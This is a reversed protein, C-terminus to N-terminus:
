SVGCGSVGETQSTGAVLLPQGDDREFTVEMPVRLERDPYVVAGAADLLDVHTSDICLRATVIQLDGDESSEILEVDDFVTSGDQRWTRQDADFEAELVAWYEATVTARLQDNDAEGPFSALMVDFAASYRTYADIAEALVAAEAADDADAVSATPSPSAPDAATCAATSLLLGACLAILEVSRTTRRSEGM